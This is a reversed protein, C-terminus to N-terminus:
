SRGNEVFTHSWEMKARFGGDKRWIKEVEGDGDVSLALMQSGELLRLLQCRVARRGERGGGGGGEFIEEKLGRRRRQARGGKLGEEKSNLNLPPPLRFLLPESSSSSSSSSSPSSAGSQWEQNVKARFM